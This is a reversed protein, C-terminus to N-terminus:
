GVAWGCKENLFFVGNLPLPNRTPLLEWTDGLNSSHLVVSGPRGVVWAHNEFCYLGHFDLNARLDRPWKQIDEAYGWRAGSSRSVLIAGGQGVALARNWVLQLGGLSRGGMAEVEATGVDGHRMKALRSWAGALAGTGADQFDAALWSACRPGKVPKWTRGGDT